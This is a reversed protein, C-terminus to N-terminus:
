RKSHLFGMENSLIAAIYNNSAVGEVDLPSTTFDYSIEVWVAAVTTFILAEAEEHEKQELGYRRGVVHVKYFLLEWICLQMKILLFFMGFIEKEACM